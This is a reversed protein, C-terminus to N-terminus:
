RPEDEKPQHWFPQEPVISVAALPLGPSDHEEELSALAIIKDVTAALSQQVFETRESKEQEDIGSANGFLAVLIFVDPAKRRIRRIAYRIQAPTAYEVYCLCILAVEKTELSFLRALQNVQSVMLAGLGFIIAFAFLVVVIVAAGRPFYWGELLRV